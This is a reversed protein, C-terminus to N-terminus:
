LTNVGIKAKKGVNDQRVTDIIPAMLWQFENIQKGNFAKSTQNGFTICWQHRRM